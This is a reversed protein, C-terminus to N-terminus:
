FLTCSFVLVWSCFYRDGCGGWFLGGVLVFIVGLLSLVYATAPKQEM